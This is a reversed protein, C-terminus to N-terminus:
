KCGANNVQSSEDMVEICCNFFNVVCPTMLKYYVINRDKRDSVIGHARLVSLHKSITSCDLGILNTLETVSAEGRSLRDIIRLRAENAMVKLVRAQRRFVEKEDMIAEGASKHSCTWDPRVAPARIM